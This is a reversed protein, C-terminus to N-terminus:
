KIRGSRTDCLLEQLYNVAKAFAQMTAIAKSSLPKSSLSTRGM